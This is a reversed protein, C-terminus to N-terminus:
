KGSSSSAASAGKIGEALWKRWQGAYKPYHDIFVILATNTEIDKDWMSRLDITARGVKGAENALKYLVNMLNVHKDSVGPARLDKNKTLM